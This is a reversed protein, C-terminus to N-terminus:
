DSRYRCYLRLGESVPSTPFSVLRLKKCFNKAQAQSLRLKKAAKSLLALFNLRLEKILYCRLSRFGSCVCERVCV